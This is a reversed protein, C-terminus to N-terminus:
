KTFTFIWSGGVNDVRTYGNGTYAFSIQLSTTTAAYSVPLVDATGPDRVIQTVPDTGFSWVGSAPWPSLAPRGACSYTFSTAGKTGGLTLQFGSWATSQDVLDKTVTSVKWTGTLIGL